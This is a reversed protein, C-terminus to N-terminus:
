ARVPLTMTLTTGQEPGSEAHISGSHAQVIARALFLGLGSGGATAVLNRQARYFREFIYPLHEEDIGVGRDIVRIVVHTDDGQAEVVVPEVDDSFKLANDIIQALANSLLLPDCNVVVGNTRREIRATLSPGLRQAALDVLADLTTRERTRLLHEASVRSALLLDEVARGLRDAEAEITQLYEDRQSALAEPNARITTAFAKITSIPTKLEHSVAAVIESKLQEIEAYRQEPGFSLLWGDELSLVRAHFPRRREDNSWAIVDEPVPAFGLPPDIRSFLEDASRGLADARSIGTLTAAEESWGIVCGQASLYVAGSSLRALADFDVDVRVHPM